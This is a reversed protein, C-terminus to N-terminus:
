KAEKEAKAEKAMEARVDKPIRVRKTVFGSRICQTCIRITRVCGDGLDARVSQLNPLWTHRTHHYTKSVRNGKMPSKGCVACTRSM